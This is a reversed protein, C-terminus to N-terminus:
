RWVDNKIGRSYPDTHEERNISSTYLFTKLLWQQLYDCTQVAVSSRDQQSCNKKPRRILALCWIKAKLREINFGAEWWQLRRFFIRLEQAARQFYSIALLDNDIDLVEYWTDRPVTWSTDSGKWDYEVLKPKKFTETPSIQNESLHDSDNANKFNLMCCWSKIKRNSFCKPRLVSLCPHLGSLSLILYSYLKWPSLNQETLRWDNRFHKRVVM